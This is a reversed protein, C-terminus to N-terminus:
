DWWFYWSPSPAQGQALATLSEVGQEVLDPCYAYQERAVTIAEDPTTPPRAVLLEMVQDDSLSVLEAGFREHWDRLTVVHEAPEIGYNCGGLWGLVAPVEWGHQAPVLALLGDTEAVTFRAPAPDLRTPPTDDYGPDDYGLPGEDEEADAADREVRLAAVEAVTLASARALVADDDYDDGDAPALTLFVDTVDPGLLVPWLGTTAHEARLRRWWPLLDAAPARFGEVRRGAPTTGLLTTVPRGGPAGAGTGTAPPGGAPAAGDADDRRRWWSM